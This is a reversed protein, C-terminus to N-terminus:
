DDSGYESQWVGDLISDCPIYEALREGEIRAMLDMGILTKRRCDIFQLEGAISHVAIGHRRSIVLLETLWDQLRTVQEATVRGEVPANEIVQDLTQAM